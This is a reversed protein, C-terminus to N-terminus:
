RMWGVSVFAGGEPLPIAGIAPAEPSSKKRILYGTLALGAGVVYCGVTLKLARDFRKEADHWKTDATEFDQPSMPSANFTNTADLMDRRAIGLAVHSAAGAILTVGGGILLVNSLTNGPKPTPTVTTPMRSGTGDAPPPTTTEDFDIEVRQASKDTIQLTQQKPPADSGELKAFIVHTGFPLTITRPEFMEDPAFSSVWFKAKAGAPKVDITVAAVNATKLREEIQKEALPVWDPLPDTASQRQHCTAMWLQAQSWLERRTYALSILCAHSARPQIKDAQKFSEIADAFRGEKALQEGQGQLEERRDAWAVPPALAVVGAVAIALFRM